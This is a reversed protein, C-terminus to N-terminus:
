TKEIRPQRRWLPTELWRRYWFWGKYLAIALLAGLTDATWDLVDTSRGPVFSQHWEDSAGYASVALLAWLGARWGPRTRCVLTGLLGYVGFHGFKDDIRTVGPTAVYSRSSAYFIVGAVAVAWCVARVSSGYRLGSAAPQPVPTTQLRSVTM